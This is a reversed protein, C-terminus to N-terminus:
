FPTGDFAKTFNAKLKDFASTKRRGKAKTNKAKGGKKMKGSSGNAM